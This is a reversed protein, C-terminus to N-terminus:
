LLETHANCFDAMQRRVNLSYFDVNESSNSGCALYNQLNPRLDPIDAASYGIPIDRYGQADRYAKMDRAAAKLYPAAVSDAGTTLMENGIFFGAINAYGQFEDMVAQYKQYMSQTWRPVASTDPLIYDDRTDLDLWVYIGVNAFATMCGEHDKGTEVHYVRISNTGLTRMLAADRTCQASDTLTDDENLQYALGILCNPPTYSIFMCPIAEGKIYFQEGDSTFFKAGKVSITPMGGTANGQALISTFLLSLVFLLRLM